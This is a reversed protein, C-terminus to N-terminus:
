RGGARDASRSRRGLREQHAVADDGLDGLFGEEVSRRFFRLRDVGAATREGRTQDVQAGGASRVSDGRCRSRAAEGGDHELGVRSRGGVTGARTAARARAGRAPARMRGAAAAVWPM